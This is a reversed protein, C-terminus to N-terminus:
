IKLAQVPTFSGLFFRVQTHAAQAKCNEEAAKLFTCFDPLAHTAQKFPGLGEIDALLEPRIISLVDAIGKLGQWGQVPHM